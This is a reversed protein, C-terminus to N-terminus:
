EREKRAAAVFVGDTLTQQALGTLIGEPGVELFVNAETASIANAFRVPRRVHEVWYQANTLQGPTTLGGTVASVVPIRPEHYTVTAAIRGFEDLMPEMLPSHSAHSVRLRRKRVTVRQAIEEVVSEVGSIV